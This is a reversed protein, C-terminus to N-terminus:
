QLRETRVNIQYDGSTLTDGYPTATYVSVYALVSGNAPITVAHGAGLTLGSWPSKCPADTTSSCEDSVYVLCAFREADSMPLARGAYVALITDINRTGADGGDAPATSNSLWISVTAAQATPNRIEVYSYPVPDEYAYSTKPCVGSSLRTLTPTAPISFVSAQVGAVVGSISVVNAAGPPTVCPGPNGWTCNPQCSAWRGDGADCSLGPYWKAAAGGDASADGECEAAPAGPTPNCFGATNWKCDPGCTVNKWSCQGCYQSQSEGPTCGGTVEGSCTGWAQWVGNGCFRSESGCKGCQRTQIGSGDPCPSGVPDWGSDLAVDAGADLAADDAGTDAPTTAEPASDKGPPPPTTGDPNNGTSSEKPPSSDKKGGDVVTADTDGGGNPSSEQGGPAASCAVITGGGFTLAVLSFWIAHKIRM